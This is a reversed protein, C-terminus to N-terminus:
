IVPFDMTGGQSVDITVSPNSKAYLKALLRVRYFMSDSGAIRVVEGGGQAEALLAVASVILLLMGFFVTHKKM